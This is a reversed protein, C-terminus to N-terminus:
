RLQFPGDDQLSTRKVIRNGGERRADLLAQQAMKILIKHDPQNQPNQMACGLSATVYIDIESSDHPRNLQRIKDKLQEALEGLGPKRVEDILVAFTGGEYRFCFTQADNAPLLIAIDKLLKDGELRGHHLNYENFADLSLLILGLGRKSTYAKGWQTALVREFALHNYLGTLEDQYSTKQPQSKEQQSMLRQSLELLEQERKLRQDREAKLRVASRVRAVLEIPSRDKSVYDMAGAEFATKLTHESTDSTLMVIPIDKCVPIAMVQRCGEIGDTGPMNVDMLIVDVPNSQELSVAIHMLLDPVSEVGKIIVDGVERLLLKSLQLREPQDDVVVVHAPKQPSEPTSM